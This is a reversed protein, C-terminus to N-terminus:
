NVLKLLKLFESLNRDIRSLPGSITNNYTGNEKLHSIAKVDPLQKSRQIINHSSLHSLLELKVETAYKALQASLKEIAEWSEIPKLTQEFYKELSEGNSKKISFQKMLNKFVAIQPSLYTTSGDKYEQSTQEEFVAPKDKYIVDEKMLELQNEVSVKLQNLLNAIKVLRLTKAELEALQKSVAKKEKVEELKSITTLLEYLFDTIVLEPKTELATWKIEPNFFLNDLAQFIHNENATKKFLLSNCISYSINCSFYLIYFGAKILRM